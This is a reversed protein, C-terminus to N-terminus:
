AQSRPLKSVLRQHQHTPIAKRVSALRELDMESMVVGAGSPLCAVVDGWPDVLMSHGHTQRGNTHVGGQAAALVYCQNEIARARLLVEWHARGTTETFASPVLLLDVPGMARVLEPFRLDYCITLGIRGLDTQAAVLTNGPVMTRSEDLKRTGDQYHFLHLKDYRAVVEGSPSYLLSTNSVKPPQLTTLPLSGGALWIQHQRAKAALFDQIPGTGLPEAIAYKDTEHLGIQCFYEPLSVLRAGADAAQDILQGATALNEALVASSVMQIAAIKM